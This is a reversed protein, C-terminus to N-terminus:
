VDMRHLHSDGVFLIKRLPEKHPKDTSVAENQHSTQSSQTSNIVDVSVQSSPNSSVPLSEPLYNVPISPSCQKSIFEKRLASLKSEFESKLNEVNVESAFIRRSLCSDTQVEQYQLRNDCRLTNKPLAQISKEGLSYLNYTDKLLNDKVNTGRKEILNGINCQGLKRKVVAVLMDHVFRLESTCCLVSLESVFDPRSKAFLDNYLKRIAFTARQIILFIDIRGKLDIRKVIAVDLSEIITKLKKDSGQLARLPSLKDRENAEVVPTKLEVGKVTTDIDKSTIKMLEIAETDMVSSSKIAKSRENLNDNLKRVKERADKYRARYPHIDEDKIDRYGM